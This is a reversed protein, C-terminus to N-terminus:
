SEDEDNERTWLDLYALYAATTYANGAKAMFTVQEGPLEVIQVGNPGKVEVIWSDM